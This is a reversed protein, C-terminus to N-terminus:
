VTSSPRQGGTEGNRGTASDAEAEFSQERRVELLVIGARRLAALLGSLEAQDALDAHLTTGVADGAIEVGSFDDLLRNPVAGAVRIQYVVRSMADRNTLQDPTNWRAQRRRM